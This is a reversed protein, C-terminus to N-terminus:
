GKGQNGEGMKRRLVELFSLNSIKLIKTQKESKVIKIKDGTCMEITTDGDYTARAEEMEQKRGQGIEVVVEDQESLVISRTNLTHPCIPTIVIMSAAPSVIPGGASLNYGTSGTPTSVIIGDATYSNLFEGNVYINFNIVRLHGSRSIVIDNLAIDQEIVKSNQIVTGQLLMREEVAYEDVILKNLAPIINQKEVEALYGLTGLNVGLLPINKDLLDRAAQILTGDGGLVLVAEINDPVLCANTFRYKGTDYDNKEEYVLCRCGKEELYNRIFNTTELSEDKQINTIIYFNKM